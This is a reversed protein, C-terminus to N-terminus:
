KVGGNLIHLLHSRYSIPHAEICSPCQRREPEDKEDLARALKIVNYNNGVKPSFFERSRIAWLANNIYRSLSFNLM